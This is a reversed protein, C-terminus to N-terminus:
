KFWVNIQVHVNWCLLILNEDAITNKECHLCCCEHDWAVDGCWWVTNNTIENDWLIGLPLLSTSHMLVFHLGIAMKFGQTQRFPPLCWLLASSCLLYSAVGKDIRFLSWWSLSKEIYQKLSKFLYLDSSLISVLFEDPFQKGLEYILRFTPHSEWLDFWILDFWDKNIHRKEYLFFYRLTSVYKKKFGSCLTQTMNECGVAEDM